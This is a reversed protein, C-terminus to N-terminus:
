SFEEVIEKFRNGRIKYNEFMDYSSCAPSLIVSDLPGALEYAKLVAKEFDNTTFIEFDSQLDETILQSSEGIAVIHKCGNKLVPILPKYSAGKHRGGLILIYKGPFGSLSGLVSGVNTAKSDNYFKVSHNEGAFEMRHPLGNFNSIIDEFLNKDGGMLLAIGVAALVNAQNHLGTLNIKECPLSYDFGSFILNNNELRFDANKDGEISFSHYKIDMKSIYKKILPDDFNILSFGDSGVRNFIQMKTECYHEFSDYRDLHDETLNLLAAVKPKLSEITELQFSSLELSVLGGKMGEPKDVIDCLPTGLNGGTFTPRNTSKLLEGLLSVTTSKGNTGTVAAIDSGIFTLALEIEGIIKVGNDKAKQVVQPPVGPSLVILDANLLLSDPHSGFLTEIEDPLDEITIKKVDNLTVKAGKKLALKAASIGSAGGGIVVVKKNELSNNKKM